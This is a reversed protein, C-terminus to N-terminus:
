SRSRCVYHCSNQKEHRYAEFRYTLYWLNFKSYSSMAFHTCNWSGQGSLEYTVTDTNISSFAFVTNSSAPNRLLGILLSLRNGLFMIHCLTEVSDANACIRHSTFVLFLTSRTLIINCLLCFTGLINIKAWMYTLYVYIASRQLFGSSMQCSM